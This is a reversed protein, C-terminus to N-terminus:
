KASSSRSATLTLARLLPLEGEDLLALYEEFSHQMRFHSAMSTRFLGFEWSGIMDGGHWLADTYLVQLAEGDDGGYVVPLGTAERRSSMLPLIWGAVNQKGTPSPSVAGQKIIEQSIVTNYPLEM